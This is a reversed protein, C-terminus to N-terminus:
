RSMTGAAGQPTYMGAPLLYPGSPIVIWAVLYAVIPVGTFVISLLMLIRVLSVDWGYHVALGQCVGAVMRGERPRELRSGYGPNVRWAM